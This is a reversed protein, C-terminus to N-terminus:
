RVVSPKYNEYSPQADAPTIFFSCVASLFILERISDKM